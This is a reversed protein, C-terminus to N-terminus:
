VELKVYWILFDQKNGKEGLFVNFSIIPIFCLKLNVYVFILPFFITAYFVKIHPSM